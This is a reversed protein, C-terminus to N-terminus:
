QEPDPLVLVRNAVVAPDNQEMFELLALRSYDLGDRLVGLVGPHDLGARRRSEALSEFDDIDRTAVCYANACAWDFVADDAASLLGRHHVCTVDYGLNALAVAAEPSLNEDLLLRWM